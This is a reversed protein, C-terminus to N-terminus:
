INIELITMSSTAYYDTPYASSRNTYWTGSTESSRVKVVYTRPSLDTAVDLYTTSQPNADANTLEVMSFPDILATSDKYLAAVGTGTATGSSLVISVNILFKSNTSKPTITISLGTNTYGTGTGSQPTSYLVHHASLIAGTGAFYSATAATTSNVSYSSTPSYSSTLANNAYSATGFYGVANTVSSTFTTSTINGTVTLKNNNVTDWSLNANGGFVGGPSNFQIASTPGGPSTLTSSADITIINQSLNETFSINNGPVLNKFQLDVGSKQKFLGFGTTGINSATNVEGSGGGSGGSLAYSATVANSAWSSTGILSGRFSGTFSGTFNGIYNGNFISSSKAIIVYDALDFATIKKTEQAAIDTIFLLDDPQVQLNTYDALDTIKKSTSM